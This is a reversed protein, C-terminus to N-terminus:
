SNMNVRFNVVELQESKIQDDSEKKAETADTEFVGRLSKDATHNWNNRILAQFNQM